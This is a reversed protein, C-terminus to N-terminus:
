SLKTIINHMIEISKTLDSIEEESLSSLKEHIQTIKSNVQMEIYAEGLPTLSFLTIRRDNDDFIRDVWGDEVLKNLMISLSSNSVNLEVSLDKLTSQHMRKLIILTKFQTYTLPSDSPLTFLQKSYGKTKVFLHFLSKAVKKDLPLNRKM